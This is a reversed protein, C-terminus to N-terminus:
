AGVGEAYGAVRASEFATPRGESDCVVFALFGADAGLALMTDEVVASAVQPITTAENLRTMVRRLVRARDTERAAVAIARRGTEEGPPQELMVSAVGVVKGGADFVPHYGMLLQRQVGAPHEMVLPVDIISEGSELVRQIFPEVVAVADPIVEYISLGVHAAAPLGNMAALADNVRVYRLDCDIIGVGAGATRFLLETLAASAGTATM